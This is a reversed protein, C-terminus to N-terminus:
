PSADPGPAVRKAYPHSLLVGFEAQAPGTPLYGLAAYFARAEQTSGLHIDRLGWRRAESELARVIDAGIGQRQWAPALYVLRLEGSRHLLGVGAIRDGAEAVVCSNDENAIWSRFNEATKNALWRSLTAADNRHDAVCSNTIASRVVAIAEDADEPRAARISIRVQRM